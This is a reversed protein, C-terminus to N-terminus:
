KVKISDKIQEFKSQGIGSVNKIEEITKFGNNERRYKIIRESISEGIGDLKMLEDKSAININIKGKTESTNSARLLEEAIDQGIEPIIIKEEDYVLKARNIRSIDAKETLGGAKEIVDELRDGEKLVIVGSNKVAGCIDVRIEKPELDESDADGLSGDQNSESNEAPNTNGAEDIDETILLQKDMKVRFEKINFAAISVIFIIVLIIEKKTLKRMRNGGADITKIALEKVYINITAIRVIICRYIDKIM